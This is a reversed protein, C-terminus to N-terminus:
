YNRRRRGLFRFYNNLKRLGVQELPEHARHEGDDDSGAAATLRGSLTSHPFQLFTVHTVTIVIIIHSIYSLLLIM